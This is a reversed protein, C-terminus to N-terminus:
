RKQFNSLTARDEKLQKKQYDLHLNSKELQKGTKPLVTTFAGELLLVAKSDKKASKKDNM